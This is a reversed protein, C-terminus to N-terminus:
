TSPHHPFFNTPPNGGSYASPNDLFQILWVAGVSFPTSYVIAHAADEAVSTGFKTLCACATPHFTHTMVVGCPVFNRSIGRTSCTVPWGTRLSYLRGSSGSTKGQGSAITTKGAVKLVILLHANPMESVSAVPM